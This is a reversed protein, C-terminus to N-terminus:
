PADMLYGWVAFRLADGATCGFFQGQVVDGAALIMQGFAVLASVAVPATVSGVLTSNAGATVSIRAFTMASTLNSVYASQLMLLKGAAVATANIVNTGATAVATLGQAYRSEFAFFLESNQNYVKLSSSAAVLTQGSADVLIPRVVDSADVGHIVAM